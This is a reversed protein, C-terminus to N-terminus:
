LSRKLIRGRVNTNPCNFVKVHKEFDEAVDVRQQEEKRKGTNENEQANTNACNIESTRNEPQSINNIDPCGGGTLRKNLADYKERSILYMTKFNM